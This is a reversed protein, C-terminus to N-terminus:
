SCFRYHGFSILYMGNYCSVGFDADVLFKYKYFAM